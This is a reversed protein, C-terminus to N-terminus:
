EFSNEFHFYQMVYTMQVDIQRDTQGVTGRGRESDREGENYREGKGRKRERTSYRERYGERGGRERM